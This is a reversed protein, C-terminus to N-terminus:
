NLGDYAVREENLAGAMYDFAEDMQDLVFSEWQTATASEVQSLNTVVEGIIVVILRNLRSILGREDNLIRKAVDVVKERYSTALEDGTTDKYDDFFTKAYIYATQHTLDLLTASPPAVTGDVLKLQELALFAM